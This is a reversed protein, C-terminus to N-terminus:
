GPPTVESFHWWLLNGDFEVRQVWIKAYPGITVNVPVQETLEENLSGEKALAGSALALVLCMAWIAIKKM